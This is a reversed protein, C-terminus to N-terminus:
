PSGVALDWGCFVGVAGIVTGLGQGVSHFLRFEPSSIRGIGVRSLELFSQIFRGEKRVTEYTLNTTCHSKTTNRPKQNGPYRETQAM